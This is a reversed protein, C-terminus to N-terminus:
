TLKRYQQGSQILHAWTVADNLTCRFTNSQSYGNRPYLQIYLTTWTIMDYRTLSHCFRNYLHYLIGSCYWFWGSPLMTDIAGFNHCTIMHKCPHTVLGVSSDIYIEFIMSSHVAGSVWFSKDATHGRHWPVFVVCTSNQIFGVNQVTPQSLRKEERLKCDM